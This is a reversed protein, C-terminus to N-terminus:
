TKKCKWNTFDKARSTYASVHTQAQHTTSQATIEVSMSLSAKSADILAAPKYRRIKDM